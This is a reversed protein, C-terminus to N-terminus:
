HNQRLYKTAPPKRFDGGKLSILTTYPDITAQNKIIIKMNLRFNILIIILKRFIRM